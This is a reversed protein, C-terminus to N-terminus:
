SLKEELNNFHVALRIRGSRVSAIVNSRKFKALITEPDDTKV